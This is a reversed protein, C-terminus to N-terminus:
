ECVTDLRLTDLYVGEYPLPAADASDFVFRLQIQQGAYANLSLRLHIFRGDTVFRELEQTSFLGILAGDRLVLVQFVDFNRMNRTAKFLDFALVTSGGKPITLLPTTASSKVRRDLQYTQPVPDGCYLSFEGASSRTKDVNWFVGTELNDTVYVGALKGQDFNALIANGPECCGPGIKGAYQCLGAACTDITCEEGDDCAADSQCADPNPTTVCSAGECTNVTAM